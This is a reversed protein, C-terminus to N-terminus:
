LCSFPFTRQIGAKVTLLRAYISTFWGHSELFPGQGFGGDYSQSPLLAISYCAHACVCTHYRSPSHVSVTM